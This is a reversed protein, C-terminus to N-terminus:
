GGGLLGKIKDLQDLNANLATVHDRMETIQTGLKAAGGLAGGSDGAADMAKKGLEGMQAEATPQTVAGLLDVGLQEVFATVEAGDARSAASARL